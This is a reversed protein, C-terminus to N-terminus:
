RLLGSLFKAMTKLLTKLSALKKPTFIKAKRGSGTQREATLGADYRQLISYITRKPFGEEKFHHVTFSKGSDRNSAWFKYVRLRLADENSAM